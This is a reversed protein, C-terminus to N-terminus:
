PTVTEPPEYSGKRPPILPLELNGEPEPRSARRPPVPDDPFGFLLLRVLRAGAPRQAPDGFRPTFRELIAETRASVEALEDATLWALRQSFLAVDFWEPPEAPRRRRYRHLKGLERDLYVDSLLEAAYRLEPNAEDERNLRTVETHVLRWPRQRGRGGGAEAVFGYRALQRLHWSCNAPSEGVQGSAETATLPGHVLLAELLALRTHHALARLARPDRVDSSGSSQDAM